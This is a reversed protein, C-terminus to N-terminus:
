ICGPIRCPSRGPRSLPGSVQPKASDQKRSRVVRVLQLAIEEPDLRDFDLWQATSLHLEMSKDPLVGELRIPVVKKRKSTAREIEHM